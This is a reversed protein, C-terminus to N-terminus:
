SEELQIVNSIHFEGANLFEIINRMSKSIKRKKVLNIYKNIAEHKEKCGMLELIYDTDMFGWKDKQIGSYIGYSSYYFYEERGRYGHIDKPNNHIYASLAISYIETCVPDSEFRGRFVPGGRNYKKNYYQAYCLNIRQMIKSIDNGKPDLFIHAHTSMCCFSYVVFKYIVRYRKYLSLYKEKDNDDRFLPVEDLGRVRIHYKYNPSKNRAKRM